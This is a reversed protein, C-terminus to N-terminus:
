LSECQNWISYKFCDVARIDLWHWVGWTYQKGLVSDPIYRVNGERTSVYILRTAPQPTLPWDKLQARRSTPLVISAYCLLPINNRASRLPIGLNVTVTPLGDIFKRILKRNKKVLLPRKIWVSILDSRHTMPVSFLANYVFKWDLFMLLFWFRSIKSLTFNSRITSTNM